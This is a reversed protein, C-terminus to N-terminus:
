KRELAKEAEKLKKEMDVLRRELDRMREEMEPRMREFDRLRNQIEPRNLGREIEGALRDAWEPDLPPVLCDEPCERTGHKPLAIAVKPRLVRTAIRMSDGEREGLTVSLKLPKKDRVLELNTLEGARHRQVERQLRWSSDLPAGDFALLVDGVKLGAKEAASAPEVREVLLGREGPAGFFSRLEPSIETTSVGLFAGHHSAIAPEPPEPAEPPEPPEPVEAEVARPAATPRATPEGASAATACALGFLAFVFLFPLKRM